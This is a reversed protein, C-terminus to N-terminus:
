GRRGSVTANSEEGWPQLVPVVVVIHHPTRVMVRDRHQAVTQTLGTVVAAGAIVIDLREALMLMLQRIVSIVSHQVVIVGPDTSLIVIDHVSAQM